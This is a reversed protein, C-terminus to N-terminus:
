VVIVSLMSMSGIYAEMFEYIVNILYVMLKGISILLGLLLDNFNGSYEIIAQMAENVRVTPSPQQTTDIVASMAQPPAGNSQNGRKGRQVITV